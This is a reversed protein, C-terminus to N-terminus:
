ESEQEAGLAKEEAEFLRQRLDEMEERVGSSQEDGQQEQLKKNEGTFTAAGM